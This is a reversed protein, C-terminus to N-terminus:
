SASCSPEGPLSSETLSRTWFRRVESDGAVCIVEGAGGGCGIGFGLIGGTRANRILGQPQELLRRDPFLM